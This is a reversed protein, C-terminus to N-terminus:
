WVVTLVSFNLDSGGPNTVASLEDHRTRSYAGDIDPRVQRIARGRGAVLRTYIADLRVETEQHEHELHQRPESRTALARIESVHRDRRLRTATSPPSCASGTVVLDSRRGVWDEPARAYAGFSFSYQFDVSHHHGRTRPGATFVTTRPTRRVSYAQKFNPGGKTHLV